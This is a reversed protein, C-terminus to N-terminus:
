LTSDTHDSLEAGGPHGQAINCGVEVSFSMAVFRPPTHSDASTPLNDFRPGLSGYDEAQPHLFKGIRIAGWPTAPM